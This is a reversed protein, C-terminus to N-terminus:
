LKSLQSPGSAYLEAIEKEYAERAKDRKLKFTPTLMDNDVSFLIPTVHIARVTEFGQLANEKSLAVIEKMIADKFSSSACLQDLPANALSPENTSAWLHAPEEDPVVIAVLFSQLSDGYVFCQSILPSRTLINEIKEPAVYEGQALKFINKKRDIIQLTGGPRWLGIDGSHLWGEEDIAEKTNKEDKYYGQFVSPGRLCIEGRGVCPQGRHDRDANLYGMEPVDELVVEVCGMPGGVHGATHIDDPHTVTGAATGETQGYGEMVPVGLLCRFFIMVNDSLPASGSVVFRLQDMGLGKKIKNFILRDYLAHTLKGHKLGETKAALAADFLRKKVGGATAIGANIQQDM